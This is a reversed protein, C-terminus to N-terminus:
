PLNWESGASCSSYQSQSKEIKAKRSCVYTSYNLTSAVEVWVYPGCACLGDLWEPTDQLSKAYQCSVGM